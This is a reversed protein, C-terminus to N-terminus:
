EPEQERKNNRTTKKKKERREEEKEEKRERQGMEDAGADCNENEFSVQRGEKM